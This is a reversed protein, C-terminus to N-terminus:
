AAQRLGTGDAPRASYRAREEAMAIRGLAARAPEALAVLARGPRWRAAVREAPLRATTWWTMASNAGRRMAWEVDASEPGGRQGGHGGRDGGRRRRRWRRRRIVLRASWPAALGVVNLGAVVLGLVEWPNMGPRGRRQRAPAAREDLDAGGLAARLNPYM